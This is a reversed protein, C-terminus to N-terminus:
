YSPRIQIKRYTHGCKLCTIRICKTNTRGIRVRSDRGPIVFRKCSKCFLQRIEYHMRVRLRMAIKKAMRAQDSAINENERAQRLAHSILIDIRERAIGKSIEKTM